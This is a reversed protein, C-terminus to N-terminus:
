LADYGTIQPQPLGGWVAVKWPRGDCGDNTSWNPCTSSALKTKLATGLMPIRMREERQIGGSPAYYKREQLRTGINISQIGGSTGTDQVSSLTARVVLQDKTEIRWECITCLLQSYNARKNAPNHWLQTNSKAITCLWLPNALGRILLFSEPSNQSHQHSIKVEAIM